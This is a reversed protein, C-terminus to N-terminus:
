WLRHCKIEVLCSQYRMIIGQWTGGMFHLIWHSIWIFKIDDDQNKLAYLKCILLISKSPIPVNQPMLVSQDFFDCMSIWWSKQIISIRWACNKQGFHRLVGFHGSLTEIGWFTGIGRLFISVVCEELFHKLVLM